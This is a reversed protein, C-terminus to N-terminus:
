GLEAAMDPHEKARTNGKRDQVPNPQRPLAFEPANRSPVNHGLEPHRSRARETVTAVPPRSVPRTSPRSPAVIASLLSLSRQCAPLAATLPQSAIGDPNEASTMACHPQSLTVTSM